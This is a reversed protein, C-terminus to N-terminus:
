KKSERNNQCILDQPILIRCYGTEFDGEFGRWLQNDKLSGIGPVFINASACVHANAQGLSSKYDGTEIMLENKRRQCTTQVTELGRITTDLSDQYRKLLPDYTSSALPGAGTIIGAGFLATGLFAIFPKSPQYNM